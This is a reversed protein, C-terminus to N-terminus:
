AWHRVMRTTSYQGDYAATRNASDLPHSDTGPRHCAAEFQRARYWEEVTKGPGYLSQYVPAFDTDWATVTPGAQAWGHDTLSYQVLRTGQNKLIVETRREEAQYVRLQVVITTETVQKIRTVVEYPTVRMTLGTAQKMVRLAHLNSEPVTDV